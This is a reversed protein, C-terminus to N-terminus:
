VHQPAADTLTFFQRVWAALRKNLSVVEAESWTLRGNETREIRGEPAINSTTHTGRAQVREHTRIEHTLGLRQRANLLMAANLWAYARQANDASPYLCVHLPGNRICVHM